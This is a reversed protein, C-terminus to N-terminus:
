WSSTYEFEDAFEDEFCEEIVEITRIVDGFYYEDYDTSGFFFGEQAPLLKHAEIGGTKGYDEIVAKCTNLLEELKKGNLVYTGCDDKGGQVNDVFWKHIANSKRWYGVEEIVYKVREPKIKPDPDGGKTVSVSQRVDEKIFEGSWIYTRKYLYQDLGM